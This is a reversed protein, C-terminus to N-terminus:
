PAPPPAGWRAAEQRYVALPVQVLVPHAEPRLWKLIAKLEEQEMATCGRTPGRKRGLAHLFTCSGAGPRPPSNHEVVLVWRYAEGSQRMREATKWPGPAEVIQNYAAARPDDVCVMKETSTRYPWRVGEEATPAYGWASGLAFVGAPARRDGERKAVGAPARHLGRGWAMGATGVVVAM